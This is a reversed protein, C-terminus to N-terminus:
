RLTARHEHIWESPTKGKFLRFAMNFSVPNHFGSMMALEEVKLYPDRRILEIAYEVRYYNVFQRFNQGSLVNVTKSLYAKNTYLSRSIDDLSVDEDLFPKKDDFYDLVQKYLMKMKMDKVGDAVERTRLSGRLLSKLEEEHSSTMYMTREYVLRVISLAFMVLALLDSVIGCLPVGEKPFLFSAYHLCIVFTALTHYFHRSDYMVNHWVTENHFLRTVKSYRRIDISVNDSLMLLCILVPSVLAKVPLSCSRVTWFPLMSILCSSLLILQVADKKVDLPPRHFCTILLVTALIIDPCLAPVLAYADLFVVDLIVYSLSLLSVILILKRKGEKM